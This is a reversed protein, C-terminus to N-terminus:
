AKEVYVHYINVRYGRYKGRTDNFEFEIRMEVDEKPANKMLIEGGHSSFEFNFHKKDFNILKHYTFEQFKM